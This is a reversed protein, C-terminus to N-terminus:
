AYAVLSEKNVGLTPLLYHKAIWSIVPVCVADGLSFLAQNPTVPDLLYGHAGQLHVYERPTMWRVRYEQKGAEVVAQKSSGGRATRLCGAIEDARIEWVPIGHRTRRYATRWGLQDDDTMANLRQAQVPSLSEVFKETRHDSWWRDDEPPIHEVFSGLTPVEVLPLSLPLFHLQLSPFSLRFKWVWKPRFVSTHWDVSSVPPDLLGVIFLRPRSQPVFWKADGVFIDCSYGMRNLEEIAIALDRGGASTAFGLVNEVMVARPRRHGMEDLVRAFEWFVGSRAGSLGARTGALSLDTCPFSATALDVSPVDDGVIERIDCLRFEDLGFNFEYLDRKVTDIDNAFVTEFGAAELGARVLGMGAFFEAVSPFM